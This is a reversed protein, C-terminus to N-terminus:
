LVKPDGSLDVGVVIGGSSRHYKEALEVTEKAVDVGNRRDIALLFKVVIDLNEKSCVEIAKLVAEVYSSKTM